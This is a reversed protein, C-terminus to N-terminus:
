EDDVELARDSLQKIAHYYNTDNDCENIQKMLERLQVYKTYLDNNIQKLSDNQAQLDDIQKQYLAIMPNATIIIPDSMM